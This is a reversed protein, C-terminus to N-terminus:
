GRWLCTERLLIRRLNISPIEFRSVDRQNAKVFTGISRSVRTTRMTPRDCCGSRDFIQSTISVPTFASTTAYTARACPRFIYHVSTPFRDPDFWFQNFLIARNTPASFLRSTGLSAIKAPYHPVISMWSVIRCVFRQHYWFAPISTNCKVRANEEKRRITEIENGDRQM